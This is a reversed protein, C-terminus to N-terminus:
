REANNVTFFTAPFGASRELSDDDYVIGYTFTYQTALTQAPVFFLATALADAVLASPAVVWLAQIHRPSALSRPDIIHHYAGWARRNGASGCISQNHITAVGIVQGPTRPHELGIRMPQPTTRHYLIDGGADICYDHVAHQAILEGIIDILHGKGAAGFDLLVPQKLQLQPHTYTMVADWAPPTQLTKSHFSYSADYGADALVQGILPTMAGDTQEYLTRYIAFLARADDPLRYTGAQTAMATVLSDTRFRSYHTDYEDIRRRIAAELERAAAPAIPSYIDITWATGIAEFSFRQVPVPETVADPNQRIKSRKSPVILAM